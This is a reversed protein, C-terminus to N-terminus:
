PLDAGGSDEGDAAAVKRILTSFQRCAPIGGLATVQRPAGSARDLADRGASMVTDASVQSPCAVVVIREWGLTDDLVVSGTSYRIAVRM